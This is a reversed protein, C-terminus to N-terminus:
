PEDAPSVVGQNQPFTSLLSIPPQPVREMRYSFVRDPALACSGPRQWICLSDFCQGRIFGVPTLEAALDRTGANSALAVNFAGFPPSARDLTGGYIPVRRHLYAYGGTGIPSMNIVGLGCIADIRALAMTALLDNHGHNWMVDYDTAFIRGGTLLLSGAFAAPALMWTLRRENAGAKRLADRAWGMLDAAGLGASISILLLAPYIFRYEKHPIMSHTAVITVALTMLIPFRVAGIVALALVAGGAGAWYTDIWHLYQWWPSDGFTSSYGYIYNILITRWLPLFPIGWVATDFIGDGAVAIATGILLLAVRRRWSIRSPWLLLVLVAPALQPRLVTVAGLLLGGGILRSRSAERLQPDALYIAIVLLHAAVTESLARAGFYVDDVWLAPLLGALVASTLGHRRYAWAFGCVAGASGLAGLVGSISPMYVFPSDGFLSAVWMIGAEAYALLLSRAGYVFEWPVLGYGYAIRHAQETSQFIEDAWVITPWVYTPLLRALLAVIFIGAAGAWYAARSSRRTHLDRAAGGVRSSTLTM